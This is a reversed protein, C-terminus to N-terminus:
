LEFEFCNFFCELEGEFAKKKQPTTAKSIVLWNQESLEPRCARNVLLHVDAYCNASHKATKHETRKDVNPSLLNATARGFRM